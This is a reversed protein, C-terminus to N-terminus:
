SVRATDDRYKRWYKLSQDAYSMAHFAKRLDADHCQELSEMSEDLAKRVDNSDARGINAKFKIIAYSNRVSWNGSGSKAIAEDIVIFAREHNGRILYLAKQQLNFPLM